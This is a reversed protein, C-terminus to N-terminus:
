LNRLLVTSNFTRYLRGDTNSAAIDTGSCDKHLSVKSSLSSDTNETRLVLCVKVAVLQDVGVGGLTAGYSDAVCDRGDTLGCAIEPATPNPGTDVGYRVQFDVVETGQGGGGLPAIWNVTGCQLASGNKQITLSTSGSAPLGNCDIQNVGDADFKVSFETGSTASFYDSFRAVGAGSRYGAQSVIRQIMHLAFRGDEALHNQMLLVKNTQSSSLYLTGGAGLAILAITMAVLLEILTMGCQMNRAHIM